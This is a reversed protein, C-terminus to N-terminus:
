SHTRYVLIPINKWYKGVDSWIDPIVWLLPIVYTHQKESQDGSKSKIETIDVDSNRKKEKKKKLNASTCKIVLPSFIDPKSETINRSQTWQICVSFSSTKASRSFPYM